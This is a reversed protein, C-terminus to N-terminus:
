FHGIFIGYYIRTISMRLIKGFDEVEKHHFFIVMKGDIFINSIIWFLVPVMILPAQYGFTCVLTIYTAFYASKVGLRFQSAEDQIWYNTRLRFRLRQAREISGTGEMIDYTRLTDSFYNLGIAM